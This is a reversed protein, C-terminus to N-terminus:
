APLERVARHGQEIAADTYAAAAADSNAITIRGHRARGIVNPRQAEPVLPDFLSNFEPAYGHPWRNVTIAEIDRAEDFGGPGLTRGLQRRIETEFRAFPTALLEARGARNQDHESLGPRCPTREMRLVTPEDPRASTRYSGIDVKPNLYLNSFYSGPAYIESVGLAKLAQWNRLAVNAYVLPTKVLSHLAEKQPQPLEPCLYPIVMNWCALVCHRARVSHLGSGEQYSVVVETATDAAGDHAVSLVTSNLRVRVPSDPRDLQAYDFRQTVLEGVDGPPAVAPVLRRVLARALTANGDPFHLHPSGGTEHYGRATEGMEATVSPSLKLGQFGPLGYGWLDLASVADIGVGWEGHTLAQCYRLAEEEVGLLDRLYDRYSLRALRAKKQADSLGPMPDRRDEEVRALDERARRSLPAAAFVKRYSATGLGAVLHDRGFTESDFFAGRTLGLHEYYGRHQITRALMPVDISLERLLGDAVPGYPRPSDIDLTGGNVLQLGAGSGFENRKAHGGFDDHNDLVLIRRDAGHHQRYFHAAALGSIGAGVVVLDYSEGSERVAGTTKGDRLAHAAEFSGPHSGRLGTLAPPYYESGAAGRGPACLLPGCLSSAAAFLCGQLFDRRPIDRQAGAPPPCAADPDGTTAAPGHGVRRIM